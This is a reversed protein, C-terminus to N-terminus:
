KVELNFGRCIIDLMDQLEPKDTHNDFPGIVAFVKGPNETVSDVGSLAEGDSYILRVQRARPKFKLTMDVEAPAGAQCVVVTGLGEAAGRQVALKGPGQAM